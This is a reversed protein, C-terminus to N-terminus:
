AWQVDFYLLPSSLGKSNVAPNSAPYPPRAPGTLAVTRPLQSLAARPLAASRGRGSLASPRPAIGSALCESRFAWYPARYGPVKRPRHTLPDTSTQPGLTLQHEAKPVFQRLLGNSNENLGWQCFRRPRAFSIDTDHASAVQHHGAFGKGTDCTLTVGWTSLPRRLAQVADDVVAAAKGGFSQPLLSSALHSCGPWLRVPGCHTCRFDDPLGRRSDM